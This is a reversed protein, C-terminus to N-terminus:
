KKCLDTESLYVFGTIPSFEIALERLNHSSNRSGLEELIFRLGQQKLTILQEALKKSVDGLVLSSVKRKKLFHSLANSLTPSAFLIFIDGPKPAASHLDEETKFRRGLEKEFQGRILEAGQINADLVLVLPPQTIAGFETVMKKIRGRDSGQLVLIRGKTEPAEIKQTTRFSRDLALDQSTSENSRKAHFACRVKMRIEDARDKLNNLAPKEVYDSAGIDLAQAALTSDERSVSSVMVVAPHKSNFNARLYEVGDQEPMHIDLTIADVQTTKLKEKAEIGNMANAVIEFGLDKTFVQKMLSHISPSDDVVMVRILAETAQTVTPAAKSGLIKGVINQVPAPKVWVGDPKAYISAGIAKIPLTMGHLSESIGLFLLGDQDLHSLLSHTIQQIQSPQFYIFVNRCFIVDFMEQPKISMKLLNQTEFRCLDRIHNKVKAFESIDGTGRTWNEGLYQLPIGKVDKWPYVGNKSIAVSEPDIDTGLIELKVDPAATKLARQLSMALTYVEQGRSCAASWVRIKRDPRSRAKTILQTLAKETLFEFHMGERFFYTHHTTMTSILFKSEQDMNKRVYAVYQDMNLINLEQMRKQLRSQIMTFHRESLQVGTLDTAIRAIEDLAATSTTKVLPSASM